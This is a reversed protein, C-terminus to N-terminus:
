NVNDELGKLVMKKITREAITNIEEKTFAIQPYSALVGVVVYLSSGILDEELFPYNNKISDMIEQRHSCNGDECKSHDAMLFKKGEAIFLDEVESVKDEDDFLGMVVDYLTEMTAVGYIIQM